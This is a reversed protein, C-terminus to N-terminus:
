RSGEALVQEVTKPSYSAGWSSPSPGLDFEIKGGKVIDAYRIVPIALNLGNLKVSQIYVNTESAKPALITFRHGHPLHLVAKQFLPSCLMYDGSAPNVPYFGLAAFIYWASMQGCDENGNLGDPRNHYEQVLVKRVASQTKWPQGSYDYLFPYHHCPENAHWNHGGAFHRDLLENFKEKGGMLQILGPVDHMVAFTYAWKDGETWGDNEGAWRGDEQRAQMFGTAPNFQNRYNLSRKMLAQYVDLKGVAKAVQAVCWDDYCGELTTSAAENYRDNPVYGLRMLYTLGQRAEYPTHPERDAWRHKLDDIPPVMADQYVAKYALERDFGIFGKQLAEAVVSDGHTAVMINTYSPNPWKPMWGGEQYDQLLAQVMWDVRDPAVLTLLSHEARFTDWLSYATYSVGRHIKDDFASYYRGNESFLKPELMAHFLGTYFNKRQDNTGGIIEISSLKKEGTRRLGDRLRDYDWGRIESDLNNRAQDVSIFSTGVKVLQAGQEHDRLEAWAGVNQGSASVVNAFRKSGEYVGFSSIPSQFRVVFYGRFNPLSFPGLNSDMRHPNYGVIERNQLDVHVYGEINARTAEVLVRKAGEEPFHIRFIAAHDSATVATSIGGAIVSYECPSAHEDEHRFPVVREERSTKLDGTQPDLLVYGYDGLWIAPQHTGIFGSLTTDEYAYSNRGVWNERTQATWSTTGFPTTALPMMGGYESGGGAAGIMVNVESLVDHRPNVDGLSISYVSMALSVCAAEIPKM